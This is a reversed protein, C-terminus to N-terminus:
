PRGSLQQWARVILFASGQVIWLFAMGEVFVLQHSVREPMLWDPLTVLKWGLAVMLPITAVTGVISGWFWAAKQTRAQVEDTYRYASLAIGASAIGVASLVVAKAWSIGGSMEVILFAGLVCVGTGGIVSGWYGVRSYRM